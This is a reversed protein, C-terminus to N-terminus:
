ASFWIHTVMVVHTTYEYTSGVPIYLDTPVDIYVAMGSLIRAERDLSLHSEQFDPSVKM